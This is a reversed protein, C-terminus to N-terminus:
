DLSQMGVSAVKKARYYDFPDLEHFFYHVPDVIKDRFRIEYHLHPALSLGTNGSMAIIDGRNVKYGPGVFVRSLHNYQTTYGNGHDITVSIGSTNTRGGASISSVRGDATAFVRTEEPITYDMGNHQVLTRYFPHIRRGTSTAILNLEKNIIPQISPIHNVEEMNEEIRHILVELKKSLVDMKDTFDQLEQQFEDGLEANTKKLLSDYLGLRDDQETDLPYSDFLSRFLYRDRESVNELVTEVLDYRTPLSDFETELGKVSRKMGIEIPTDFFFSFVAYYVIAVGTWVLIHIIATLAKRRAHVPHKPREEKKRFINFSKGAM